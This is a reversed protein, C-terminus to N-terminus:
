EGCWAEYDSPVLDINEQDAWDRASQVCPSGGGAVQAPTPACLAAVWGVGPHGDHRDGWGLYVVADSSPDLERHCTCCIHPKKRMTEM